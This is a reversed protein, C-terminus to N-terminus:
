VTLEKKVTIGGKFARSYRWVDGECLMGSKAMDTLRLRTTDGALMGWALKQNQGWWLEFQDDEEDATKPWISM